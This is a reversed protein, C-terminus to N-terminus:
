QKLLIKVIPNNMTYITLYIITFAIKVRFKIIHINKFNLSIALRFYEMILLLFLVFYASFGIIRIIKEPLHEELQIEAFYFPFMKKMILALMFIKKFTHKSHKSRRFIKLSLSFHVYFTKNWRFEFLVPVSFYLFIAFINRKSSHFKFHM